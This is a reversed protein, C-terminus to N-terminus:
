SMPEMADPDWRCLRGERYSRNSLLAPAAARFGMRPGEVIPAGERVAAFFNEFHSLHSDKGSVRYVTESAKDVQPQKDAEPDRERYAALFRERNKESFTRVLYGPAEGQPPRRSLIVENGDVTMVGEDGIFQFGPPADNGGYAFSVDLSLAFAPHSEAEPYRYLGM